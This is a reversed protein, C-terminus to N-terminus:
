MRLIPNTNKNTPTVNTIMVMDHLTDSGDRTRVSHDANRTTVYQVFQSPYNPINKKERLKCLMKSFGTFKMTHAASAMNTYHIWKPFSVCLPSPATGGFGTSSTNTHSKAKNAQM